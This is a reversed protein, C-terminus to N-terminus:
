EKELKKLCIHSKKKKRLILMLYWVNGELKQKLQIRLNKYTTNENKNLNFYKRPVRKAEITRLRKTIHTSSLSYGNRLDHGM